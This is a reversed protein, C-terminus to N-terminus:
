QGLLERLNPNNKALWNYTKSTSTSIGMEAAIEKHKMGQSRLWCFMLQREPLVTQLQERFLREDEQREVTELESPTLVQRSHEYVYEGKKLDKEELGPRKKHGELLSKLTSRAEEPPKQEWRTRIDSRQSAFTPDLVTEIMLVNDPSSDAKIEDLFAARAKWDGSYARRALLYLDVNWRPVPRGYPDLPYFIRDLWEIGQAIGRGLTRLAEVAGAMGSRLTAVTEPISTIIESISAPDVPRARWADATLPTLAKRSVSSPLTRISSSILPRSTGISKLGTGLQAAGPVWLGRSADHTFNPQNKPGAGLLLAANLVPHGQANLQEQATLPPPTTPVSAKALLEILTTM